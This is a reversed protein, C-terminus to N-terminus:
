EALKVREPPSLEAEAVPVAEVAAPAAATEVPKIDPTNNQKKKKEALWHIAPLHMFHPLGGTSLMLRVQDEGLEELRGHMDVSADVM